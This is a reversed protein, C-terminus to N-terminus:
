VNASKKLEAYKNIIWNEVRENNIGARVDLSSVWWQNRQFHEFEFSSFSAGNQEVVPAM